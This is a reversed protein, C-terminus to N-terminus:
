TGAQVEILLNNYKEDLGPEVAEFFISGNLMDEPEAFGLEELRAKPVLDYAKSNSSGYGYNDVLWAGSEPSIWSDIMDYAAQENEIDKHMVFGAVWTFIGEKPVAMAVPLGQKKLEVLSQNWAYAAVIEGAALAQEVQTVDSWYFRLIDRQKIAMKRVEVLQEDTLAFINDYGLVRAAIEVVAGASDYFAVRRAYDEDYFIGWSEGDGQYKADVLDTRYVISSNGFESPIYYQDGDINAMNMNKLSDFVHPWNTIRSPDMPKLFGADKWRIVNYSGPHMLDPAYGARIKQFSEEESAIYSFEPLGGYKKAYQAFLPEADYGAWTHYHVERDARASRGALPMMAIGVGVSAFAKTVERRTMGRFDFKTM